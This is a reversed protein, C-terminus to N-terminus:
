EQVAQDYKKQGEPYRSQAGDRGPWGGLFRLLRNCLSNRCDRSIDVFDMEAEGDRVGLPPEDFGERGFIEFQQIIASRRVLKQSKM